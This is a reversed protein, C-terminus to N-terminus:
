GDTTAAVEKRPPEAEEPPRRRPLTLGMGTLLIGAALMLWFPSAFVHTRDVLVGGGLPGAFSLAYGATLVVGAFAAVQGPSRAFFAPLANAGSFTMAVGISMSASWLWALSAAGVAFGLTGTIVLAGALLYFRRSVPWRWPLAVLALGVPLPAVNLLLLVLALYGPSSGRLLFPVWTAGGYYVLSQAGFLAAVQWVAPDRLVLLLNTPRPQHGERSGPALVMWALGVAIAPLAWLVFSGRWGALALLRVGLTAATLGGVGLSTAYVASARQLSAPFWARLLVVAGPQVAAVCLAMLASFVYLTLPLPPAVRLLAAAGLGITGLGVVARAGYRNVLFAGPVAAAGLCLVPIASLAGAASYTLHLDDRIAPLVPSVGVIVSRLQFGVLAVLALRGAPGRLPNSLRV